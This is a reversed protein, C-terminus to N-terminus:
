LAPPLDNVMGEWWRSFLQQDDDLNIPEGILPTLLRFNKGESAANIRRFPEDWPHNAMSFKGIHAPLLARAQLEEVARAAEEPNMHIHAWRRDYQGSDLVVLDFGDFMRGIESFHPGYGSDGSFFLRRDPTELAFGVWLTKNKTLLRGSYHRAPLVHIAFGREPELLDFWDSEHIQESAYGWSAFYGGVGLGCIVKKTKSKLAMVSAHDLHDWHDHTIFLYDIEPMDEATYLDTGAFARNTYSVPAAFSSFVPDILVRRGGLQVFYSSHGLWVVTDRDRDLAKLDTKVSPMSGAPRPREKRTVLSNFFVTAFNSDETLMPTPVLNSFEGDVYNPSQKIAELRSGEPLRGFKPHQIYACAGIVLSGILILVIILMKGLHKKIGTGVAM